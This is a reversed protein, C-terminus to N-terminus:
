RATWRTSGAPEAAPRGGAPGPWGRSGAWRPRRPLRTEHEQRVAAARRPEPLPTRRARQAAHRTPQQRRVVIACRAGHRPHRVPPADDQGGRGDLRQSLHGSWVCGPSGSRRRLWLRQCHLDPAGARDGALRRGIRGGGVDPRWGGGLVLEHGHVHLGASHTRETPVGVHM